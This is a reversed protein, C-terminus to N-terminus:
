KIYDNFGQKRKENSENGPEGEIMAINGQGGLVRAIWEAQLQGGKYQDAAVYVNRKSNPSDDAVTVVPINKEIAKAIVANTGEPDVPTTVIANVGMQIWNEMNRVLDAQDVGTASAGFKVTAGLKQAEAQIGDHEEAFFPNSLNCVYAGIVLGKGDLKDEATRSATDATSTGGSPAKAQEGAKKQETGGGCGALAVLALAM